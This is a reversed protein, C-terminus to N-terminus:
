DMRIPGTVKIKKLFLAALVCFVSLLAFFSFTDMYALLGAQTLLNQYTLGSAKQFGTLIGVHHALSPGLTQLTSRYRVDYPTVHAVWFTQHVQPRREALTTVLSIGVSGGVNRMLNFIGSANGMQEPKLSGLAVTNLPVFQFGISLGSIFLPWFLNWPSIDLTVRSLLIASFGTLLFGGAVLYGGPIKGVL